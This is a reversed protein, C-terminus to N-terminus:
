FFVLEGRHSGHKLSYMARDAQQLVTHFERPNNSLAIGITTGVTVHVGESFTPRSILKLARSAITRAVDADPIQSLLVCFEDGGLRGIVDSQRCASRLGRAVHQLLADGAAHGHTDNILKFHDLDFFAVGYLAGPVIGSLAEDCRAEFGRRNLLGTLPDTESLVKHRRESEIRASIDTFVWLGSSEGDQLLFPAVVVECWIPGETTELEFDRRAEKLNEQSAVLEDVIQASEESIALSRASQGCLQDAGKGLLRCLFPNASRIEGREVTAIGVAAQEMLVQHRYAAVFLQSNLDSVTKHSQQLASLASVARHRQDILERVDRRVTRASALTLGTALLIVLALVNHHPLPLALSCVFATLLFPTLFPLMLPLFGCNVAVSSISIVSITAAVIACLMPDHTEFGVACWIAWMCGSFFTTVFLAQSLHRQGGLGQCIRRIVWWRVGQIVSFAVIWVTIWVIPFRDIGASTMVVGAAWAVPISFGRTREYAMRVHVTVPDEEAAVGVTAVTRLAQDATPTM